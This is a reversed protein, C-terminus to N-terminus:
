QKKMAKIQKNLYIKTLRIEDLYKIIEDMEFDIENLYKYNDNIEEEISVNAIFNSINVPKGKPLDSLKV